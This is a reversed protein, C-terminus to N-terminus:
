YDWYEGGDRSITGPGKGGGSGAAIEGRQRRLGLAIQPIKGLKGLQEEREPRVPGLSSPTM